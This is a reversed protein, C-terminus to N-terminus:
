GNNNQWNKIIAVISQFQSAVTQEQMLWSYIEPDSIQLLAIFDQKQQVSLQDYYNELFRGLLVDLELMGRRCQWQLRKKSLENELM